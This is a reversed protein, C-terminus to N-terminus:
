RSDRSLGSAADARVHAVSPHENHPLHILRRGPPSLHVAGRRVPRHTANPPHRHNGGGHRLGGPGPCNRPRRLCDNRRADCVPDRTRWPRRPRRPTAAEPLQRHRQRRLDGLAALVIARTWEGSAALYATAPGWVAFAGVVPLLSAFMTVTGWLAASPIGLLWLMAGCLVGQIAAVVVVGNVSGQVADKMRRLLAESQQREFPLLDSISEVIADGDRLLLFMAFFVLVSSLGAGLVSSAISVAYRGVGRTLDGIHQRLWALITAKELGLHTAIWTVPAAVRSLSETPGSLTGRVAHGLAVCENVALGALLLVPVVCALMTLVSTIFASLGARGTRRVLRQHVPHCVTALIASWAIVGAFPRLLSVCLYVVAGAAGLFVTWRLKRHVNM